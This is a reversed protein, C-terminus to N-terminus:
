NYEQRPEIFLRYTFYPLEASRPQTISLQNAKPYDLIGKIPCSSEGGHPREVEM